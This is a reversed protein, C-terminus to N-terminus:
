RTPWGEISFEFWKDRETENVPRADTDYLSREVFTVRGQHDVLVVTQKQTGYLGSLGVPLESRAAAIDEAKMGDMGEGGLRPILISLRLEKIFADWTEGNKKKPLTDISLLSMMEEVFNRKNDKHAVSRAIAAAMLKKGDNVKPWSKNSFTANSLGVTEGNKGAIWTVGEVSPTRNSIVALPEGVKGCILSFGGIGKLDDGHLLKKIFAETDHEEETSQKLFANIMAGRSRPAQVSGGEERFNTLVAVLGQNTIGLWTGQEERLLDRGGLIHENPAPWWAADATPRSLYEDRNNILVLAYDPHATSILAICM